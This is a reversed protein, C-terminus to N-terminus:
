ASPRGGVVPRRVAEVAAEPVLATVDSGPRLRPDLYHAPDTTILREVRLHGRPDVLCLVTVGGVDATVARPSEAAEVLSEPPVM